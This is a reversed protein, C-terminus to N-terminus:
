VFERYVKNLFHNIKELSQYTEETYDVKNRDISTNKLYFEKGYNEKLEELHSIESKFTHPSASYCLKLAQNIYSFGVAKMSPTRFEEYCYALYAFTNGLAFYLENAFITNFPIGNEIMKHCSMTIYVLDNKTIRTMHKKGLAWAFCMFIMLFEAPKITEHNKKIKDLLNVLLDFAEEERGYVYMYYCYSFLILGDYDEKSHLYENVNLVKMALSYLYDDVSGIQKALLFLYKEIKSILLFKDTLTQAYEYSLILDDLGEFISGDKSIRLARNVYCRHWLRQDTCHHSNLLDIAKNAYFEYKDYASIVNCYECITLCDEVIDLYGYEFQSYIMDAKLLCEIAQVFDGKNKYEKSQSRYTSAQNIQAIEYKNLKLSKDIIDILEDIKGERKLIIQDFNLNKIREIVADSLLYSIDSLHNKLQKVLELDADMLCTPNMFSLIWQNLRPDVISSKLLILCNLDPYYNNTLFNFLKETITIDIDLAKIISENKFISNLKIKGNNRTILFEKELHLIDVENIGYDVLFREFLGDQEYYLLSFIEKQSATLQKNMLIRELHIHLSDIENKYNVVKNAHINQIFTKIPSQWLSVNQQNAGQAFLQIVAPIMCIEDLFSEVIGVENKKIEKPYISEFYEYASDLDLGSLFLDCDYIQSTLILTIGSKKLIDLIRNNQQNSIYDNVILLLNEENSFLSLVISIINEQDIPQNFQLQKLSEMWNKEFSLIQINKYYSQYRYAYEYALTKKGIGNMGGILAFNQNTIIQHLELLENEYGFFDQQYLSISRLFYKTQIKELIEDIKHIFQEDNYRNEQICLTHNLLEDILTNVKSSLSSLDFSVLREKLICGISYLDYRIDISSLTINPDHYKLTSKIETNENIESIKTLSDYDIFHFFSQDSAEVVFLNSPKIDFVIYGEKHLDSVISAINRINKFCELISQEYYNSYISGYAYSQIMYLTNNCSYEKEYIMTRPLNNYINKDYFHMEIAHIFSGIKEVFQNKSDEWEEEDESILRGQERILEKDVPYYEKLIVTGFSESIAKYAIISSGRAIEELIKFEFVNQGNSLSVIHDKMLSIRDM